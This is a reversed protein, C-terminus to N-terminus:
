WRFHVNSRNLIANKIDTQKLLFSKSIKKKYILNLIESKLKVNFSIKRKDENLSKSLFKLSLFLRRKYGVSFPVLHTRRRRKIARVEIYTNLLKFINLLISFPSIKTKKSIDFFVMEILVQIKQSKGSKIFFKFFKNYLNLNIKKQEM